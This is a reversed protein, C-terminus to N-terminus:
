KEPTFFLEVANLPNCAEVHVAKGEGSPRPQLTSPLGGEGDSVPSCLLVERLPQELDVHGM